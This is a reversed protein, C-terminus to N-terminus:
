AFVLNTMKILLIIIIIKLNIIGGNNVVIICNRQKIKKRVNKELRWQESFSHIFTKKQLIDGIHEDLALNCEATGTIDSAFDNCAGDEGTLAVVRQGLLDVIELVGNIADNHLHATIDFVFFKFCVISFQM